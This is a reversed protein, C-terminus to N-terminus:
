PAESKRNFNGNGTTEAKKVGRQGACLASSSSMLPGLRGERSDHGGLGAGGTTSTTPRSTLARRQIFALASDTVHIATNFFIDDHYYWRVDCFEAATSPVIM